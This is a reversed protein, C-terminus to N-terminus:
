RVGCSTISSYRFPCSAAHILRLKGTRFVRPLESASISAKTASHTGSRSGRSRACSCAQGYPDGGTGNYRDLLAPVGALYQAVRGPQGSAAAATAAEALLSVGTSAAAQLEAATFESPVDIVGGRSPDVLTQEPDTLEPLQALLRGATGAPGPPRDPRAAERYTEWQEPWMTTILLRGEGDLLDALRGLVQGGDDSDTYQRLEGLWLVTRPPVGVDLREKLAAPDRPYDLQWGEFPGRVLAEWAARTKGTSSGGRVVVLRSAPVHPDLVATLTKDHKRLVYPPIAGGGIVKHVGLDVPSWSGVPRGPVSKTGIARESPKVVGPIALFALYLGPLAAITGTVVPPWAQGTILAVLVALGAAAILVTLAIM